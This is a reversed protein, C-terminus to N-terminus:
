NKIIKFTKVENNNKLVKIFYLAGSLENLPISSENNEVKKNLLIKGQIDHLQYSFKYSEWNEVKLIVFDTAPNPYVSANIEIGKEEIGTVTFIEYPQQLGDNISGENTSINTYDIQGITFSISGGAGSGEGGASVIGQQAQANLIGCFLFCFGLFYKTTTKM